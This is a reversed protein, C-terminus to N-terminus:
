KKTQIEPQRQTPTVSKTMRVRRNHQSDWVYLKGDVKLKDYILSVKLGEARDQAASHWLKQRTDCVIKSFDESIAIKPGKLKSCCSLIRNKEAFDYLRLIIPRHREKHYKGVRHIRELSKVEIGLVKQFVEQKVIAELSKWDKDVEENIGYIVLNNRRSRNELDDVKASLELLQINSSSCAEECVTLKQELTQMRCIEKEISTVWEQVNTVVSEVRKLDSTLEKLSKTTERQQKLIKKLLDNTSSSESESDSTSGPNTEIDGATLLLLKIVDACDKVTELLFHPSPLVMLALSDDRISSTYQVSVQIVFLLPILMRDRRTCGLGSFSEDNRGTNIRDLHPGKTSTVTDTRWQRRLISENIDPPLLKTADMACKDPAPTTNVQLSAPDGAAAIHGTSWLAVQIVFLLPILMRDRRTCSLGSFSGDNRGTNIRDLHPGETSTVTDTRWQRRLITENIDPPLLKTADMACQDPAPTTNVQLSAPDGAVAVHGTSCLAVEQTLEVLLRKQHELNANSALSALVSTTVAAPNAGASIREILESVAQGSVRPPPPPPPEETPTPTGAIGVENEEPDYPVDEDDVLPTREESLASSSPKLRAQRPRKELPPTYSPEYPEEDDSQGGVSTEALPPTLSVAESRDAWSSRSKGSPPRLRNKHRVIIGLLMHPRGSQLGPGDFPMLVTPVPSHSPLPLIYFDKLMRSLGGVVGCRKRSNLYTYLERYPRKEEDNAPQFRVVLLEKNGSQKIKSLYDWVQDPIIRGCVNITDPIDQSLFDTPGSVKYAATVFKSVEQMSIFGKWVSAPQPQKSGGKGSDPSGLSVTSSPELDSFDEQPRRLGKTQETSPPPTGSRGRVPPPPPPSSSSSTSSSSLEDAPTPLSGSPQAPVSATSSRRSPPPSPTLRDDPPPAIKGTCIKCNLDFLHSRHADTTDRSSKDVAETTATTSGVVSTVRAVAAPPEPQNAVAKEEAKELLRLNDDDIEVEGKHTKKLLAHSSVNQAAEMQEKKIMEIAHKNEQERWRALEKSALEEPTMRVLRDPAIKGRLIKRFLGQNRSDKINFVLSRYKSKYRTGTDRFVKFLEEEIRLAMRRVEDGSLSLDSAEKCRNLLSDRLMKRVNLRVPEISPQALETKKVEAVAETGSSTSEAPASNTTSSPTPAAATTTNAGSPAASQVQAAPPQKVSKSHPQKAQAAKSSPQKASHPRGPTRAVALEFTPNRVLWNTLNEPTPVQVGAVLKGSSRETFMLRREGDLKAAKITQSADHVYKAICDRGCYLGICEAKRKCVLCERVVAKPAPPAPKVAPVTSMGHEDAHKPQHAHKTHGTKAHHSKVLHTKDESSLQRHLEKKPAAAVVGRNEDKSCKPCVWEKNEKELLRGQQRTVGVCTGHFWDKCRDCEIMFKDNHPKRCICWLREPDDESSWDSDHVEDSSDEVDEDDVRRGMERKRMMARKFKEKSQRKPREAVVVDPPTASQAAAVPPPPQESRTKKPLKHPEPKKASGPPKGQPMKSSVKALKPTKPLPATHQAAHKVKAPSSPPPASKVAVPLVSKKHDPQGPHASKAAVPKSFMPKKLLSKNEAPGHKAATGHKHQSVTPALAPAVPAGTVPSAPAAVTTTPTLSHELGGALRAVHAEVSDYVSEESPFGPVRPAATTPVAPAVTPPPAAPPPTPVPAAQPEHEKHLVDPQSFLAPEDTFSERRPRKKAEPTTRVVKVVKGFPSIPEPTHKRKKTEGDDSKRRAPPRHEEKAEEEPPPGKKCGSSDRRGKVPAAVGANSKRSVPSKKPKATEACEPDDRLRKKRARTPSVAPLMGDEPVDETSSTSESNRVKARRVPKSQMTSAVASTKEKPTTPITLPPEQPLQHQPQPQVPSTVRPPTVVAPMPSLLPSSFAAPVPPPAQPSEAGLVPTLLGAMEEQERRKQEANEAKIRELRERDIREIQRQSRRLPQQPSGPSVLGADDGDAEDQPSDHDQKLTLVTEPAAAPEESVLQGVIPTCYCHDLLVLDIPSLLDEAGLNAKLLAEVDAESTEAFLAGSAAGQDLVLNELDHFNDDIAALAHNGDESGGVNGLVDFDLKDNQPTTAEQLLAHMQEASLVSDLKLLPQEQSSM